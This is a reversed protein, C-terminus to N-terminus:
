ARRRPRASATRFRVRRSRRTSTTCRGPADSARRVLALGGGLPFLCAALLFRGRGCPGHVRAARWLAVALAGLLLACTAGAGPAASWLALACAPLGILGASSATALHMPRAVEGDYRRAILSAATALLAGAAVAGGVLARPGAEESAALVALLGVPLGAVFCWLRWLM